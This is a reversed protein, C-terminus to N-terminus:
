YPPTIPPDEAPYRDMHADTISSLDLNPLRESIDGSMSKTLFFMHNMETLSSVDWGSIDQNFKIAYAFMYKMNTVSSSVDWGSIDQNFRTAAAFMYKMNTVSSVDWGSIDENFTYARNFMYSM